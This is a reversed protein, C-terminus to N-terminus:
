GPRKKVPKCALAEGPTTAAKLCAVREMDEVEICSAIFRASLEPDPRRKAILSLHAYAEACADAPDTGCAAAVPAFAFM